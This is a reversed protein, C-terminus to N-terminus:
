FVWVGSTIRSFFSNIIFSNRELLAVYWAHLQFLPHVVCPINLSHMLRRYNDSTDKGVKSLSDLTDVGLVFFVFTSNQIIIYIKTLNQGKVTISLVM